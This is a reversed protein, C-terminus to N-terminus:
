AQPSPGELPDERQDSNELHSRNRITEEKPNRGRSGNGRDGFFSSKGSGRDSRAGFSSYADRDRGANWGDFGRDDRGSGGRSGFVGRDRDYGNMRSDRDYGNMYGNGGRSDWSPSYCRPPPVAPNSYYNATYANGAQKSAERNRLHPPIYRGKSATGGGSQDDSSNLDLGAFQQDLGLANEVAVHSMVLSLRPLDREACLFDSEGPPSSAKAARTVTREFREELQFGGTRGRGKYIGGGGGLQRASRVASRWAGEEEERDGGGVEAQLLLYRPSFEESRM